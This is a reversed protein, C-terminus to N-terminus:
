KEPRVAEPLVPPTRSYISLREELVFLSMTSLATAYASSEKSEQRLMWGKNLWAGDAQQWAVLDKFTGAIYNSTNVRYEEAGAFEQGLLHMGM